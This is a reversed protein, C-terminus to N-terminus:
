IFNKKLEENEDKLSVIEQKQHEIIRLQKSLVARVNESINEKNLDLTLKKAAKRKMYVIMWIGSFILLM